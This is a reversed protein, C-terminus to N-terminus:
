YDRNDEADINRIKIGVEPFPGEWPVEKAYRFCVRSALGNSFIDM